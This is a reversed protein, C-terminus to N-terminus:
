PASMEDLVRRIAAHDKCLSFYAAVGPYASILDGTRYIRSVSPVGALAPALQCDALTLPGKPAGRYDGLFVELSALGRVLRTLRASILQADQHMARSIELLDVCARMIGLEGIRQLLRMRARLDPHSPRLSINPYIDELYELIAASEPLVFGDDRVLCPITGTPNITHYAASTLGGPPPLIKIPLDKVYIAIRVSASFPSNNESYLLFRSPDPTDSKSLLTDPTLL